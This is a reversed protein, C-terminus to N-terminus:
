SAHFSCVKLNVDITKGCQVGRETEDDFYLLQNAPIRCYAVREESESKIMWIVVDPM